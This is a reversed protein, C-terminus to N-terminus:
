CGPNTDRGPTVGSLKAPGRDTTQYGWAPRGDRGRLVVGLSGGVDSLSVVVDACRDGDLHGWSVVIGDSSRARVDTSWLRRGTSGQIATVRVISRNPTTVELMDVGRGDIAGATQELTKHLRKGTRGDVLADHNVRARWPGSSVRLGLDGVGDGQLDGVAVALGYADDAERVPAVRHTYRYLVRGTAGYTVVTVTLVPEDYRYTVVSLDRRGDRDVDGLGFGEHGPHNAVVRGDAGSLVLLRVAAPDLGVSPDTTVGLDARGDGTVDGLRDVTTFGTLPLDTATWVPPGGTASQAVLAYRGDVGVEQVLDALRDGSLDPVVFVWGRRNEVDFEPVVVPGVTGDAGNVVRVAVTGTYGRLSAVFSMNGVVVDDAQGPLLNDVAYMMPLNLATVGATSFGFLAPTLPRAWVETGTADFASLTPVDSFAFAYAPLPLPLPPVPVDAAHQVFSYVLLGPGGTAGVRAARVYAFGPVRKEWLLRGDTGRRARVITSPVDLENRVIATEVTDGGRDGDLDGVAVLENWPTPVDDLPGAFGAQRLGAGVAARAADAAERTGPRAAALRDVAREVAGPERRMAGDALRWGEQEVAPAPRSPAAVAGAGPWVAALAAAAAVLRTAIRKKGM